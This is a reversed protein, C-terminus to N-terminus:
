LAQLLVETLQERNLVVPNGKTSSASMTATVIAQLAENGLAQALSVKAGASTGQNVIRGLGPCLVTLSPINIDRMLGHLWWVGEAVDANSNGTMMRSVEQFRALKVLADLRVADHLLSGSDGSSAKEQLCQANKEFVFPLLCACIAGHPANEFRGGLVAAFGHVAGAIPVSSAFYFNM